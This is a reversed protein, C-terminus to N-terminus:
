AGVPARRMWAQAAAHALVVVCCGIGDSRWVGRPGAFACATAVLAVTIGVGFGPWEEREAAIAAGLADLAILQCPSARRTLSQVIACWAPSALPQDAPSRESVVTL